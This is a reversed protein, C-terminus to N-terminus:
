AAGQTRARSSAKGGPARGAPGTGSKGTEVAAALPAPAEAPAGDAEAAPAPPEEPEPAPAPVDFDVVLPAFLDGHETLVPHGARATMGPRIFVLQGGLSIAAAQVASYIETDGSMNLHEKTRKGAQGRLGRVTAIDHPMRSAQWRQYALRDRGGGAEAEAYTADRAALDPRTLYHVHEVVVSPVYALCGAARGLDAWVNDVYFHDLDPLCMWGLATVISSSIVAAEPIDSRRRDDPYAIGTGGMGALATLLGTDWGRTRPVHDDGFSALAPSLQAYWGALENTWGTLTRRTGSVWHALGARVYPTLLADYEGHQPDDQDTAIVLLTDATSLRLAEALMVALREPRGRSPVIVTLDPM